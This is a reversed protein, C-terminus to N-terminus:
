GGGWRHTRRWAGGKGPRGATSGTLGHAGRTSVGTLVRGTVKRVPRDSRLWEEAVPGPPGAHRELATAAGPKGSGQGSQGAQEAQEATDTGRRRGGSGTRRGEGSRVEHGAEGGTGGVGGDPHHPVRGAPDPQEGGVTGPHGTERGAGGGHRGGPGLEVPDAPAKPTLPRSRRVVATM